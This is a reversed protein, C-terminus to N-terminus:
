KIWPLIPVLQKSGYINIEYGSGQGAVRRGIITEVNRGWNLPNWWPKMEFNYTDSYSRVSHNPYRRLSLHGYVLADNLSASAVFLSIVKKRGNVFHEGLSVLGSLDIRDLSVYLPQGEGNRYWDNAEELTLYGDWDKELKKIKAELALVAEGEKDMKLTEWQGSLIELMVKRKDDNSPADVVPSYYYQLKKNKEWKERLNIYLVLLMITIPTAIVGIVMIWLEAM